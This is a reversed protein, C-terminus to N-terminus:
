QVKEEKNLDTYCLSNFISQCDVFHDLVNEFHVPISKSVSPLWRNLFDKRATVKAGLDLKYQMQSQGLNWFSFGAQELVLALVHLQIKGLNNWKKRDPDMFGSLSTYTSGIVYGLEGSVPKPFGEVWLEVGVLKFNGGRDSSNFSNTEIEKMLACYPPLLWSDDIWAENLRQLVTDVKSSIKLRVGMKQLSNSLIFRTLSRSLHRNKWELLASEIHMQPLLITGVEPHNSCITIFGARALHIYFEPDWLPTWYWAQELRNYVLNEIQLPDLAAPQIYEIINAM